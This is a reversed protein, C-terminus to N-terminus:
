GHKSAKLQGLGLVLFVVAVGFFVVNIQRDRMLPLVAALASLIAALIFALAVVRKPHQAM